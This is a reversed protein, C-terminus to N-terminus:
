PRSAYAGIRALHRCFNKAFGQLREKKRKFFIMEPRFVRGDFDFDVSWYEIFQLPYERAATEFQERDKGDIKEKIGELRYDDLSIRVLEKDSGTIDKREFSIQAEGLCSRKDSMDEM